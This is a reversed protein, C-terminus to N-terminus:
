GMMRDMMLGFWRDAYASEGSLTWSIRAIWMLGPLPNGM